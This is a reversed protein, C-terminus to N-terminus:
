RGFSVVLGAAARLNHVWGFDLQTGAPVFRDINIVSLDIPSRHINDGVELRIGVSAPGLPVRFDSGVGINLALRTELGLEDIAILLQDPDDDLEIKLEDATRPPRREIFSLPPSVTRDLDYTVGGLGFFAYPFVLAGRRYDLLGVAGGVDYM